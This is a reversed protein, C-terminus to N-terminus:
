DHAIATVFAAGVFGVPSGHFPINFTFVGGDLAVFWYGSRGIATMGVIPQALRLGGSSGHYTANGFTFVGGDSAVLWYGNGTTTAAAGVIPKNLHKGGMSGAYRADGFTFVGGDSAVLWYGNGSPTPTMAVIPKNLRLGGTSGHYKANGFSFIGGDSAVLWYGDRQPRAAIGVIPKALARGHMSGHFQASGFSYVSGDSAALWYGPTSLGAMGIIPATIHAGAMSGCVPAGGFPFVNGDTSAVWYGTHNKQTACANPAHPPVGAPGAYASVGSRTGILILGLAASPSAFHPSDNIAIPFGARTKGTAADLSYLLASGSDIFWLAGGAAIPPGALSTPPGTWGASMRRHVLDLNVEQIGLDCPVYLHTGVLADAGKAESTPCVVLHQLEHLDGADLLYGVNQKGIEFVMNAGVLAPTTTGLDNDCCANSSSFNHLLHLTSDLKLVSEGYDHTAPHPDNNGTGVYINGSGDVAPGGPEWIAGAGDHPTPDFAIEGAGSETVSVLWGHYPGCDGYYGGYGIYVRGNALALGARQQIYLPNQPGGPDVNVSVLPTGSVADFGFLQHHIRGFSDQITGVAFVRHAAVDIVMTSTIGLPDINGCGVQASVNTMPTGVHRVWLVRGDHADLSYVTDRETAAFVRGGFVVPQGYVAGDLARTWAGHLPLLSPESVDNGTRQNNLHYVPWSVGANATGMAGLVLVVVVLVLVFRRTV